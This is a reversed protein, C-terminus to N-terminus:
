PDETIMDSFQENISLRESYSAFVITTVSAAPGLVLSGSVIRRQQQETARVM